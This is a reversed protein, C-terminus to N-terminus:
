FKLLVSVRCNKESETFVKLDHGKFALYQQLDAAFQNRQCRQIDLGLAELNVVVQFREVIMGQLSIHYPYKLVQTIQESLPHISDDLCYLESDPEQVLVQLLMIRNTKVEEWSIVSADLAALSVTITEPCNGFPVFKCTKLLSTGSISSSASSSRRNKVSGPHTPYSTLSAIASQRRATASDAGSSKRRFASPSVAYNQISANTDFFINSYDAQSSGGVASSFPMSPGSNGMGFNSRDTVSITFRKVSPVRLIICDNELNIGWKDMPLHNDLISQLLSAEKITITLDTTIGVTPVVLVHCLYCHWISQIELDVAQCKMVELPLHSINPSAPSWVGYSAVSIRELQYPCECLWKAQEDTTLSLRIHKLRVGSDTFNTWPILCSACDLSELSDFQCNHFRISHSESDGLVLKLKKLNAFHLNYFEPDASRLTPVLKLEGSVKFGDIPQYHIGNVYHTLSISECKPLKFPEDSTRIPYKTNEIKKLNPCEIFYNHWEEDFNGFNLQNIVNLDRSIIRHNKNQIDLSYINKLHYLYTREFLTKVDFLESRNWPAKGVLHLESFVVRKECLSLGRFYLKSLYNQFSCYIVCITTGKTCDQAISVLLSALVDSYNRDSQIVILLHMYKKIFELLQEANPYDTSVYLTNFKSMLRKYDFPVDMDQLDRVGDQLVVVGLLDTVVKQFVPSIQMWSISTQCSDLGQSVVLELIESPLEM